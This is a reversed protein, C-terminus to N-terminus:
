VKAENDPTWSKRSSLKPFSILVRGSMRSRNFISSLRGVLNSRAVHKIDEFSEREISRM